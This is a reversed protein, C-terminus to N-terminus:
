HGIRGLHTDHFGTGYKLGYGLARDLGIHAFWVLAVGQWLPEDAALAVAGLLAPVPYSHALNYTWAGVRSSAAYGAMFVDPVFLLLPVLWWPEDLGAFYAALAAALLVVGETQLIRRPVGSVGPAQTLEVMSAM